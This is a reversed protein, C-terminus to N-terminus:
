AVAKSHKKELLRFGNMLALASIDQDTRRYKDYQHEKQIIKKAWEFEEDTLRTFFRRNRKGIYGNQGM